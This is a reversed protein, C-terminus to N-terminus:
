RLGREAAYQRCWGPLPGDAEARELLQAWSTYRFARRDDTATLAAFKQASAELDAPGLNVLTFRRGLREALDAGIRWNRTLEYFGAARVATDGAAFIEPRGLYRAFGKYNPKV